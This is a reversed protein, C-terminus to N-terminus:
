KQIFERWCSSRQHPKNYKLLHFHPFCQTKSRNTNGKRVVLFDTIIRDTSRSNRNAINIHEIQLQSNAIVEKNLEIRYRTDFLFLFHNNPYTEKLMQLIATNFSVHEFDTCLPEVLITTNSMKNKPQPMFLSLM